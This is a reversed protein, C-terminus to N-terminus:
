YPVQVQSEVLIGLKHCVFFELNFLMYHNVDDAIVLM